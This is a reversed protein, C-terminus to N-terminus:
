NIISCKSLFQVAYKYIKYKKTKVISLFFIKKYLILLLDLFPFRFHVDVYNEKFGFYRLVGAVDRAGAGRDARRKVKDLRQAKSNVVALELACTKVVPM